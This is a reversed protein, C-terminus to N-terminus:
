HKRASRWPRTPIAEVQAGFTWACMGPDHGGYRQHHLRHLEPDYLGRGAESHERAAMPEGFFLCTAWASHHAQLRLEDNGNAATLQQLRTSL